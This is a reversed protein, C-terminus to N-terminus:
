ICHLENNETRRKRGINKRENEEQEQKEKMRGRKDKM